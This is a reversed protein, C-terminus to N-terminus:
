PNYNSGYTRLLVKYNYRSAIKNIECLNKNYAELIEVHLNSPYESPSLEEAEEQDEEFIIEESNM